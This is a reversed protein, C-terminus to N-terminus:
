KNNHRRYHLYNIALNTTLKFCMISFALYSVGYLGFRKYMQSSSIFAIMSGIGTGTHSAKVAHRLKMNENDDDKNDKDGYFDTLYQQQVPFTETLGGFFFPIYWLTGNPVIEIYVTFAIYAAFTIGNLIYFVTTNCKWVQILQALARSIQYGFLVIAALPISNLTDVIAIPLFAFPLRSIAADLFPFAYVILLYALQDEISKKNNNNNDNDNNNEDEKIEEQNLTQQSAYRIPFKTTVDIGTSDELDLSGNDEEKFHDLVNMKSNTDTVAEYNHLNNELDFSGLEEEVQNMANMTSLGKNDNTNKERDFSGEEEENEKEKVQNVINMTPVTDTVATDDSATDESDLLGNGEKVQYLANTTPVVKNGNTNNERDFSVEEESEEEEGQNVMGITAQDIGFGGSGGSIRKLIEISSPKKTGRLTRKPLNRTTPSEEISADFENSSLFSSGLITRRTPIEIMDSLDKKDISRDNNNIEPSLHKSLNKIKYDVSILVGLFLLMFGGIVYFSAAPSQIYMFTTLAISANGTRRLMNAQAFVKSPVREMLVSLRHMPEGIVPKSAGNLTMVVIMAICSLYWLQPSWMPILMLFLAMGGIIFHLDYPRRFIFGHTTMQSTKMACISFFEGIGMMWGITTVSVGLQEKLYLPALSLVCGIPFATISYAAQNTWLYKKILSISKSKTISSM